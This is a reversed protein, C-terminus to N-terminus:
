LRRERPLESCTASIPWYFPRTEGEKADSHAGTFGAPVREHPRAPKEVRGPAARRGRGMARMGAHADSRPSQRDTRNLERSVKDPRPDTRLHRTKQEVEAPPVFQM